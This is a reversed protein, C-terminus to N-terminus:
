CLSVERRTEASQQAAEMVSQVYAGDAFSPSAPRDEYVATLYAAMSGIHGRLWGVPAKPTPFGTAPSPYRGVCEIRTQGRVGGIPSGEVTADYFNLYNPDMLSFSLSGLTGCVSFSLEDNAGQTLKSVTINGIAGSELECIMYFAEDANTEWVSGDSRLHTPFAIQSRATVAAVKGCLFHCLDIVHPGLDFLTGGGAEATQKWGVRRDPDICSNHKYSFDFSLIRGLRGTDILQKARMVPALYRNNFVTGCTLGSARALDALERAEAATVTLPKECLVHKGARLAAKATEFHHPNPTCIDIVDITPDHIIAAEGAARPIGYTKAVAESREPHDASACVAAVEATFPLDYFFPLNKVSWLHTKGMFGFGILGINIHKM